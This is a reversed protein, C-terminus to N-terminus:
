KIDKPVCKIRIYYNDGNKPSFALSASKTQGEMLCAMPSNQPEGISVSIVKNNPQCETDPMSLSCILIFPIFKM